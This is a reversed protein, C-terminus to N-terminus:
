LHELEVGKAKFAAILEDGPFDFLLVASKLNPLLDVDEASKVDFVDDEGDWFPIIELYIEDGGDSELKRIDQVMEETIELEEFYQKIEPIIEYGEEEIVDYAEGEKLGRVKELYAEARLPDGLLKREYMLHNVVALKFALDKFNLVKNM